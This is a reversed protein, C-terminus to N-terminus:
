GFQNSGWTYLFGETDVAAGFGDQSKCIGIDIFRIDDM